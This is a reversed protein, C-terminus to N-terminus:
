QEFRVRRGEPNNAFADFIKYPLPQDQNSKANQILVDLDAEIAKKPVPGILATEVDGKSSVLALHPIADVGFSEVYLWSERADGNISVFNVKDGYDQEIKQLTPAMLKCDECWPAWFDVLTPKSNRGIITVPDSKQQMEVLLQVPTVPHTYQWAYNLLALCISAIAVGINRRQISAIDPIEQVTTELLTPDSNAAAPASKRLSVVQGFEASTPATTTDQKNNETPANKLRVVEGFQATTTPVTDQKEDNNDSVLVSTANPPQQQADTQRTMFTRMSRSRPLLLTPFAVSPLILCSFVFIRALM